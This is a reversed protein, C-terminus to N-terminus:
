PTRDLTVAPIEVVARDESSGDRRGIRDVEFLEAESFLIERSRM